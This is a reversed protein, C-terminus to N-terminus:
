AATWARWSASPKEEMTAIPLIVMISISAWFVMISGVILVVPTMMAAPPTKIPTSM